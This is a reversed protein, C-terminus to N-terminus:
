TNIKKHVRGQDNGSTRHTNDSAEPTKTEKTKTQEKRGRM